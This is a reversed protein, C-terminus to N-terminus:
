RDDDIDDDRMASVAVQSRVVVGARTLALHGDLESVLVLVTREVQDQERAARRQTAVTLREQLHDAELLRELVHLM